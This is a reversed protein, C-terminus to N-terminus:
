FRGPFNGGFPAAHGRTIPFMPLLFVGPGPKSLVPWDELVTLFRWLKTEFYNITPPLIRRRLFFFFKNSFCPRRRNVFYSQSMNSLSQLPVTRRSEEGPRGLFGGVYM